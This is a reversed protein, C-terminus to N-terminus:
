GQLSSIKSHDHKDGESDIWECGNGKFDELKVGSKVDEIIDAVFKKGDPCAYVVVCKQVGLKGKEPEPVCAWFAQIGEEELEHILAFSYHFCCGGGFSTLRESMVKPMEIAQVGAGYGIKNAIELSYHGTTAIKRYARTLRTNFEKKDMYMM